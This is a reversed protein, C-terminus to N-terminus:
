KLRTQDWYKRSARTKEKDEPRPGRKRVVRHARDRIGGPIMGPDATDGDPHWQRRL